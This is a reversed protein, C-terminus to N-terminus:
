LPSPGRPAPKQPDVTEQPPSLAPLPFSLRARNHRVLSPAREQDLAPVARAWLNQPPGRQDRTLHEERQEFSSQPAFNPAPASRSPCFQQLTESPRPQIIQSSHPRPCPSLNPFSLIRPGTSNIKHEKLLHHFVASLYPSM